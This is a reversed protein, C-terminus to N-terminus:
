LSVERRRKERVRWRVLGFAVFAMPLGVINGYKVVNRTGDSIEAIPASGLGRSRVSLLAEDLVLWDIVNLALAQNGESMFQDSIFSSGGAVLIRANKARQDPNAYSKV